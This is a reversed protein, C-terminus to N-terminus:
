LLGAEASRLNSARIAALREEDEALEEYAALLEQREQEEALRQAGYLALARLKKPQSTKETVLGAEVATSLADNIADDHATYIRPSTAM